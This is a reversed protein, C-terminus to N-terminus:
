GGFSSLVSSMFIRSGAPIRGLFTSSTVSVSAMMSITIPPSPIAASGFHVTAGCSAEPASIPTGNFGGPHRHVQDMACNRAFRVGSYTCSNMFMRAFRGSYASNEGLIRPFFFPEGPFAAAYTLLKSWHLILQGAQSYNQLSHGKGSARNLGNRRSWRQTSSCILDLLNPPTQVQCLAFCFRIDPGPAEGPLPLLKQHGGCSEERFLTSSRTGPLVAALAQKTRQLM